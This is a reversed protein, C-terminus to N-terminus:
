FSFRACTNEQANQLIKSFLKKEYRRTVAESNRPFCFSILSHIDYSVGTDPDILFAPEYTTLDTVKINQWDVENTKTLYNSALSLYKTLELSLFYILITVAVPSM